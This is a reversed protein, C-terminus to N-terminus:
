EGGTASGSERGAGNTKVIYGNKTLFEPDKDIKPQIENLIIRRPVTWTPNLIVSTM